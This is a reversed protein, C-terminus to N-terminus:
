RAGRIVLAVGGPKDLDARGTYWRSEGHGLIQAAIEIEELALTGFFKQEDRALDIRRVLDGRQHHLELFLRALAGDQEELLDAAGRKGHERIEVGAPSLDSSRRTPFSHLARSVRSFQIFSM